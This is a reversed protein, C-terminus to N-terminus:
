IEATYIPVPLAIYNPREDFADVDIAVRNVHCKTDTVKSGGLCLSASNQLMIPATYRGSCKWIALTQESIGLYAAAERRTLLAAEVTTRKQRQRQRDCHACQEHM